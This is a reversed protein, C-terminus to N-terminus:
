QKQNKHDKKKAKMQKEKADRTGEKAPSLAATATAADSVSLQEFEAPLLKCAAWDLLPKVAKAGSVDNVDLFLRWFNGEDIHLLLVNDRISQKPITARPLTVQIFFFHTTNHFHMSLQSINVNIEILRQDKDAYHMVAQRQKSGRRFQKELKVSRLAQDYAKHKPVKEKYRTCAITLTGVRTTCNADVLPIM